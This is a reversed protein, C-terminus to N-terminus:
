IHYILYGGQFSKTHKPNKDTVDGTFFKRNKTSEGDYFGWESWLVQVTDYKEEAM